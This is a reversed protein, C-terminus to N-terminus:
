NAVPAGTPNANPQAAPDGAQQEMLQKQLAEERAKAETLDQETPPAVPLRAQLSRIYRIAAWIERQELQNAYAPMSKQGRMPVHFIRGDSWDRVKQRMLSPPKPFLFTVEGDGAAEKGHCVICTNSFVWEGQKLVEPTDPLPNVNVQGALEGEDQTFPYPAEGSSITGAAPAWMGAVHEGFIDGRQPKLKPQDGMNTANLEKYPEVGAPLGIECAFLPLALAGLALLLSLRKLMWM